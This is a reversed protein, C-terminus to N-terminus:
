QSLRPNGTKRQRSHHFLSLGAHVEDEAADIITVRGIGARRLAFAFTSGTGSGGVLTVNHDIGPRDLVWNDPDPGLLRLAERAGFDLDTQIDHKLASDTNRNFHTTLTM